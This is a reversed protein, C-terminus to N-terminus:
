KWSCGILCQKLTCPFGLIHVQIVDKRQFSRSDFGLDKVEDRAILDLHPNWEPRIELQTGWCASQVKAADWWRRNSRNTRTNHEQNQEQVCNKLAAQMNITLEVRLLILLIRRYGSKWM